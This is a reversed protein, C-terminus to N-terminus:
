VNQVPARGSHPLGRESDGEALGSESWAAQRGPWNVDPIRTLETEHLAAPLGVRYINGKSEPTARASARLESTALGRRSCACDAGSEAISAIQTLFGPIVM